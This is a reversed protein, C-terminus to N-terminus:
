VPQIPEESFSREIEDWKREDRNYEMWMALIRGLLLFGGGLKMLIGGVVQDGLLTLGWAQPGSGYIPFLPEHSFTLFSAPVTPILTNLFLYLMAM